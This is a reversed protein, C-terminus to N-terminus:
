RYAYSCHTAEQTDQLRVLMNVLLTEQLHNTYTRWAKLIEPDKATFGSATCTDANSSFHSVLHSVSSSECHGAATPGM